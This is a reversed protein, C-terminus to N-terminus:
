AVTLGIAGLDFQLRAAELTKHTKTHPRLAIGHARTYEAMRSLNREMVDLDIILSPTSVQQVKLGIQM